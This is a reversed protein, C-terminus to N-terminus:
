IYIEKNLFHPLASPADLSPWRRSDSAAKFHGYGYAARLFSFGAAEAAARDEDSDGILLTNEPLLKHRRALRVAGEAKVRFSDSFSDPSHVARFFHTLSLNGLIRLTPEIPKNTLIFLQVSADTLHVLQELMGPYLKANLCGRENYDERFALVLNEVECHDLHPWMQSIMERLPPGVWRSLDDLQLPLSGSSIAVQLSANIGPVSDVLTGDLDFVVNKFGGNIM